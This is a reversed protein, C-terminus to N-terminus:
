HRFTPMRAIRCAGKRALLTRDIDTLTGIIFCFTKRMKGLICFPPEDQLSKSGTYFYLLCSKLFIRLVVTRQESTEQNTLRNRFKIQFIKRSLKVAKGTPYSDKFSRIKRWWLFNLGQFPCHFICRYKQLFLVLLSEKVLIEFQRVDGSSTRRLCVATGSSCLM